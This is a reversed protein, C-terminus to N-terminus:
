HKSRDALRHLNWTELWIADGLELTSKDSKIL